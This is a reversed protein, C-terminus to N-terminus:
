RDPEERQIIEHMRKKCVNNHRYPPKAGRRIRICGPCEHTLGHRKFDNVRIRVEHSYKEEEEEESPAEDDDETVIPKEHQIDEETSWGSPIATLSLVM